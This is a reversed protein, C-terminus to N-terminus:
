RVELGLNYQCLCRVVYSIKLLTAFLLSSIHATIQAPLSFATALPYSALIAFGFGIVSIVLSYNAISLFKRLMPSYDLRHVSMMILSVTSILYNILPM